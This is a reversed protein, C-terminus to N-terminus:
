LPPLFRAQTIKKFLLPQILPYARSEAEGDTPKVEAIEWQPLPGLRSIEAFCLMGFTEDVSYVWVPKLKCEVAGTEEFLKRRAAEEATEGQEIHGGLIELTQRKKYRVFVWRGDYRAAIVAFKLPQDTSQCFSVTM